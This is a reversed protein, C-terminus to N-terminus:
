IRWNGLVPMNSVTKLAIQAQNQSVTWETACGSTLVVRSISLLYLSLVETTSAGSM